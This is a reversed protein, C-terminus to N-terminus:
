HRVWVLPPPRIASSSVANASTTLVPLAESCTTGSSREQVSILQALVMRQSVSMAGRSRTITMVTNLSSYAGSSVATSNSMLIGFSTTTSTASNRGGIINCNKITNNDAGDLGSTSNSALRVCHTASNTTTAMQITLNRLGGTGPDDGDITVNDAGVFELIGRTASPTVASNVTVNGSCTILISSYSSPTNSRLLPVPTSPETTNATVTVTIAGQHTGANIATFASNVTTYSTPGMTGATATVSVQASATGAVAFAAGLLVAKCWRTTRSLAKDSSYRSNM